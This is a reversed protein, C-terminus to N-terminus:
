RPPKDYAVIAAVLLVPVVFAWARIDRVHPTFYRAWLHLGAHAGVQSILLILAGCVAAGWQASALATMCLAVYLGLQFSPLMAVAGQPDDLPATGPFILAVARAYPAALLIAIAGGAVIALAGRQYARRHSGYRWVAAAIVVTAALLFQYFAHVVFLSSAVVTVPLAVALTRAVGLGVFLPFASLLAPTRRQWDPLYALVGAVYLPILPTTICEQTVIFGGRATWVVNGAAFARAGFQDLIFAAARAIFSAVGLVTASELYLPAMATFIAVCVCTLVLFRTASFHERAPPEVPTDPATDSARMWWFVYGAIAVTLVAPWAYVHLPNFWRTGAVQGLTGIRITNLMLILAVAGTAGLVRTSVAVPFAAVAALSLALADAGSCAATVDLPLAPKGFAREALNSQLLTLPFVVHSDFWALRVLGFLGVSWALASFAFNRARSRQFPQAIATPV